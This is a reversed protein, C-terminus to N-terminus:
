QSHVSLRRHHSNLVHHAGQEHNNASMTGSKRLAIGMVLQLRASLRCSQSSWGGFHASPRWTASGSGPALVGEGKRDRSLGRATRCESVRKGAGGGAGDGGCQRGGQLVRRGSQARKSGDDEGKARDRPRGNGTENGANGIGGSQGPERM